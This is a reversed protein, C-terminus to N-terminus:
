LRDDGDLADRIERRLRFADQRQESKLYGADLQRRIRHLEIAARTMTEPDIPADAPRRRLYAAVVVALVVAICIVLVTM